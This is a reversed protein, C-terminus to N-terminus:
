NLFEKLRTQLDAINDVIAYPKGTALLERDHFGWTVAITVIGAKTAEKIDGLTDTVFILKGTSRTKISELKLVKSTAVDGGLVQSFYKSLGYKALYDRIPASDTSSVIALESGSLSDFLEHIGSLPAIPLVLEAYQAFANFKAPKGERKSLSEYINGTFLARYEAASIDPYYSQTLQLCAAFSDVIVGDFDFIISDM